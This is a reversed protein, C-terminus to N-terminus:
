LPLIGKPLSIQLLEFIYYFVVPTMISVIMNVIHRKYGLVFTSIFIFLMSSIMFGLVEFLIAYLIFFLTIVGLMKLANKDLKIASEQGENGQDKEFFLVISLILLLVGLVYPVADSDVPVLDYAPLRFAFFLYFVSILFLVSAALKNKSRLM